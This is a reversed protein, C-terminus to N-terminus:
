KRRDLISDLNAPATPAARLEGSARPARAAPVAPLREKRSSASIKPLPIPESPMSDPHEARPPPLTFVPPHLVSVTAAPSSPSASRQRAPWSIVGALILVLGLTVFALNRPSAWTTKSLTRLRPSALAANPVVIGDETVTDIGLETPKQMTGRALELAKIMARATPWRDSSRLSLARDIVKAIEPPLSPVFARVPPAASRATSALAAGSSAPDHVPRGSLLQFLTAGVGWIDTAASIEELSGAAQEPAMFGPTGLAAGQQTPFGESFSDDLIRAIGFDLLKVQGRDTVFINSPKIDRHVVHHEHASALVELVALGWRLVEDDPLPGLRLLRSALTEGKLLEMVLYAGGESTEGDDLVSVAGEHQVRNAAYGEALFRRRIRDHSIFGAHLMKVAVRSGNRHVAEYVTATGGSGIVGVLTWRQGVTTGLASLAAERRSQAHTWPKGSQVWAM